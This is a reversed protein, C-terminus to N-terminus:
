RANKPGKEPNNNLRRMSVAKSYDELPPYMADIGKGICATESLSGYIYAKAFRLADRWNNGSVLMATVAASYTSGAGHLASDSLDEVAPSSLLYVENGLVAIDVSRGKNDIRSGSKLLCRKGKGLKAIEGAAAIYDSEGALKRKLLWEAECINLIILDALGLLGSRLLEMTEKDVLAKGGASIMQLDAILPAKCGQLSRIVVGAIKCNVLMGTKVARVAISSIVSKYQSEVLEPALAECSASQKHNQATVATIVSCGYIGGANFTRLDAQIGDGGGCDSVGVTLAAPYFEEHSNKM